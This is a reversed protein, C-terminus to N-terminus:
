RAGTGFIVAPITRCLLVFDRSLSWNDIYELDLKVWSDFDTIQNRGSVQWSCTLGPRMSLRRRYKREYQQVEDPVPPRPGVLSMDGIFVNWLQPLEDLSTRRLFRGFPTVRPDDRMKFVPGRMENQDRLAGLERHAGQNMSRFKYLTFLRGNLGVRKQTFLIPGPSSRRVGYAILAFLPALLVLLGASVLVDIGRKLALEWRDGPGTQFCILPMDAFYSIGSQVMGLSFLDAAITTRIGQDMCVQVLEEVDAMVDIVDTFVVEDVAKANLLDLVGQRGSVIRRDRLPVFRDLAERFAAVHRDSEGHLDAFRVVRLGLEPRRGIEAALRIAQEGTGCIVINRYNMGRKRLFRLLRLAFFREGLLFVGSLTCFLAIFSRSLDVKVLFLVAALIFFVLFSAGVFTRLIQWPSTLRMSNYTGLFNLVTVYGLIAVVLVLVYDKLPALEPGAFPIQLGLLDNWFLVSSRGYYAVFFALLILLVDAAREVRSITRWHEKLM